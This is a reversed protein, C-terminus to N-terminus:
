RALLNYRGPQLLIAQYVTAVGGMVCADSGHRALVVQTAERSRPLARQRLELDVVPLLFEGAMSLIGGFVVLDPNLANVLSAIGIGLCHGVQDLAERAVPDGSHAADMIAPVTLRDVSDGSLVSARGEQVARRVRRFLASQSVQTEWCGRNGCNCPEGNPDMTMHGFESAYGTKGRFLQGNRVAAGGLGVGASIFLVEDYGKAAGFFYEGLAALNAENEVFVPADGFAERLMDRLPVNEWKLNPAFLLAGNVHDVLGPVGLALGLLGGCTPCQESGMVVAQRLLGLARDLIAQQGAEPRTIEHHRWIIEAGFNACIVSIFDVGLECSVMYGAQPNLELMMSPRGIGSSSLGVEHAFQMALLENVLSSVTSKNLGTVEALAARSLAHHELLRQMILSLNRERVLAQDGTRNAARHSM